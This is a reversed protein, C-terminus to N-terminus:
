YKEYEFIERDIKEIILKLKYQQDNLDRDFIINKLEINLDKNKWDLRENLKSIIYRKVRKANEIEEDKRKRERNLEYEDRPGWKDISGFDALNKIKDYSIDDLYLLCHLTLIRYSDQSMDGKDDHEKNSITVNYLKYKEDKLQKYIIEIVEDALKQLYLYQSNLANEFMCKVDNIFKITECKEAHIDFETYSSPM